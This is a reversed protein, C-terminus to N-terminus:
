MKLIFIAVSLVWISVFLSILLKPKILPKSILKIASKKNKAAVKNIYAYGQKEYALFLKEDAEIVTFFDDKQLIYFYM